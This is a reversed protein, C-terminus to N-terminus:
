LPKLKKIDVLKKYYNPFWSILVLKLLFVFPNAKFRKVLETIPAAYNLYSPHKVEM